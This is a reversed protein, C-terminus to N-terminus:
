GCDRKGVQVVALAPDRQLLGRATGSGEDCEAVSVTGIGSLADCRGRRDPAFKDAGLRILAAKGHQGPAPHNLTGEIPDPAAAAECAVM